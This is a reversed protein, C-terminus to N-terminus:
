PLKLEPRTDKAREPQAACLAYARKRNGSVEKSTAAATRGQTPQEPVSDRDASVLTIDRM